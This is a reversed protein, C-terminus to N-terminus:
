ARRYRASKTSGTKVIRGEKLMRSLVSEVTSPSVDLLIDCIEKKSIPTLSELVVSEIRETKGSRKPGVAIRRRDLDRICTDLVGVFYRIFPVYDNRNEHWGESSAKLADYYGDRDANIVSEMSIYRQVSLGHRYMLLDTLLRSVRGNGDGFPHICLFDLIVCPILLLSGIGPNGCAEMYALVMSHLNQETEAAPVPTWRVTTGEPTRDIIVNDNVKFRGGGGIRAYMTRHLRCVTAEDFRIGEWGAHILELADRYGSIAKEDHGIPETDHLVIGRIREDTSAIGEIANSGKVSEVSAIEMLRSLVEPNGSISQELMDNMSLIRHMSNFMSSPLALDEIFTYDYTRMTIIHM